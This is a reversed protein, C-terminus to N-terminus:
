ARVAAPSQFLSTSGDGHAIAVWQADASLALGHVPARFKRQFLTEDKAFDWVLLNGGHDLSIVRAKGPVRSLGMVWGRHGSFTQVAKGAQINWKRITKDPGGSLLHDGDLFSVCFVGDQGVELKKVEAGDAANWVKMESDLGGSALQNGDPSYDVCYVSAAHASISRLQKGDALNWIRVTKDAGGSAATKGDPSFALSHVIDEHGSLSVAEAANISGAPSDNGEGAALNWLKLTKDASASLLSRGDASFGISLIKGGHGSLTAAEVGDQVRWLKVTGDFSATALLAADPSFAVQYVAEEHGKLTRPPETAEPM